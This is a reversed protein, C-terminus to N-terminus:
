KKGKTKSFADLYNALNKLVEPNDYAHGLVINCGNCLLGRVAGTEHDHDVYPTETFEKLCGQCKNEQGELMQEYQDRTLGYKDMLQWEKALQTHCTTCRRSGTVPNIYTNEPSYQHGKPCHTKNKNWVRVFDTEPKGRYRRASNNRCTKCVLYGSTANTYSSEETLVHGKKCTGGIVNRRYGNGENARASGHRSRPKTPDSKPGRKYVIGETKRKLRDEKYHKQCLGLRAVANVCHEINCSM